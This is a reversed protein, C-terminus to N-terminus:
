GINSIFPQAAERATCKPVFNSDMYAGICVNVALLLPVPFEQTSLIPLYIVQMFLAQCNLGYFPFIIRIGFYHIRLIEQPSARNCESKMQM